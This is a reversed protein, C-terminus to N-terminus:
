FLRLFLFGGARLMHIFLSHIYTILVWIEASPTKPPRPSPVPSFSPPPPPSISPYSILITQHFLYHTFILTHAAFELKRGTGQDRPLLQTSSGNNLKKYNGYYYSAEKEKRKEKKENVASNKIYFWWWWM